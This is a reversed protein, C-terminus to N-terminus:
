IESQPTHIEDVLERALSSVYPHTHMDEPKLGYFLVAFNWLQGNKDTPSLSIAKTVLSEIDSRYKADTRKDGKPKPFAKTILTGVQHPDVQNLNSRIENTVVNCVRRSPTNGLANLDMMSHIGGIGLGPRTDILNHCMTVVEQVPEELETPEQPQESLRNEKEWFKDVPVGAMAAVRKMTPHYDAQGDGDRDLRELYKLDKFFRTKKRTDWGDNIKKAKRILIQAETHKPKNDRIKLANQFGVDGGHVRYMWSDTRAPDTNKADNVLRMEALMEKNVKKLITWDSMSAPKDLRKMNISREYLEQRYLEHFAKTDNTWKSTDGLQSSQERVSSIDLILQKELGQIETANDAGFYKEVIQVDPNGANYVGFLEEDIGKKELDERTVETFRTDKLNLLTVMQANSSIIEKGYHKSFHTQIIDWSYPHAVMLEEEKKQYWDQNIPIGKEKDAAAEHKVNVLASHANKRDDLRAQHNKATKYDRGAKTLATVSAWDGFASVADSVKERRYIPKGDKEGIKIPEGLNDTALRGKGAPHIFWQDKHNLVDAWDTARQLPDKATKIDQDIWAKVKDSAATNWTGNTPAQTGAEMRLEPAINSVIYKLENRITKVSAEDNPDYDDFANILEKQSQALANAGKVKNRQIGRDKLGKNAHGLAPGSLHYSVLEPRLPTGPVSLAVENIYEEWLDMTIKRDAESDDGKNSITWPVKPNRPNAWTRQNQTGDKTDAEALKQLEAVRNVMWVDFNEAKSKMTAIKFGAREARNATRWWEAFEPGYAKEIQVSTLGVEGKLQSESATIVGQETLKKYDVPGVESFKVGGERIDKKYGELHREAAIPLVTQSITNLLNQLAKVDRQCMKDAWDNAIKQNELDLGSVWEFGKNSQERDAKELKWKETLKSFDSVVTRNKFAPTGASGSYLSM